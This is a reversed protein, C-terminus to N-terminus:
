MFLGDAFHTICLGEVVSCAGSLTLGAAGSIPSNGTNPGDLHITLVANDENPLTNARSSSQTYGDIAVPVMVNPLRSSPAITWVGTASDYGPDTAPIEFDIRDPSAPSDTDDANVQELAWRLSGPNPNDLTNTVTYVNSLLRREELIDVLARVAGFMAERGRKSVRCRRVIRLIPANM